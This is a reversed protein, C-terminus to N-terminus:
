NVFYKIILGVLFIVHLIDAFLFAYMMYFIDMEPFIHM